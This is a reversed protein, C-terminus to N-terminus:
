CSNLAASEKGANMDKEECLIKEIAAPLITIFFLPLM